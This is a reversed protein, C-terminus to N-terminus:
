PVRRAMALRRLDQPLTEDRELETFARTCASRLAEKTETCAEPPAGLAALRALTHAHNVVARYAVNLPPEVAGEDLRAIAEPDALGEEALLKEVPDCYPWADTEALALLEARRASALARHDEASVLTFRRFAPPVVLLVRWQPGDLWSLPEPLEIHGWRSSRDDEDLRLEGEAWRVPGFIEECYLGGAEPLYTRYNYSDPKHVRGHSRALLQEHTLWM